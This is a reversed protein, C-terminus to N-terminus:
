SSKDKSEGALEPWDFEENLDDIQINESKVHIIIKQPTFGKPLLVPEKIEQYNKFGLKYNPKQDSTLQELPYVKDEGNEQGALSFTMVGNLRQGDIITRTVTIGIEVSGNKQKPKLSITKIKLKGSLESVKEKLQEDPVPTM